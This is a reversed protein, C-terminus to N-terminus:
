KASAREVQASTFGIEDQQLHCYCLSGSLSIACGVASVFSFADGFVLVSAVVVVVKNLNQMILFTTISLLKQSHLALYGLCLNCSGSVVVWFWSTPTIDLFASDWQHIEETLVAIILMPLIGVTNNLFSCLQPTVSFDSDNLWYRQFSRDMIILLTNVSLIWMSQLTVSMSWHTYVVTGGLVMLMSLIHRTTSPVPSNLAIKDSSLLIKDVGITLLPLANRLVLVTSITTQQLAWLSTIFIGAFFFPIVMWKGLDSWKGFSMRRREFVFLVSAALLMQLVVLLSTCPFVIVAQKNVLNLSISSLMWGIVVPTGVDACLTTTHWLLIAIMMAFIGCLIEVIRSRISSVSVLISLLSSRSGEETLSKQGTPSDASQLAQDSQLSRASSNKTQPTLVDLNMKHTVYFDGQLLNIGVVDQTLPKQPNQLVTSAANCLYSACILLRGLFQQM